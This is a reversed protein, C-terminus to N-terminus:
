GYTWMDILVVKGRLDALRLPHDVNLWIDNELEPAPGLDALEVSTLSSGQSPIMSCGVSILALLIIFISINKPKRMQDGALFRIGSV